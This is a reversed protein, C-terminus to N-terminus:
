STKFLLLLSFNLPRILGDNGFRNAFIPLTSFTVISSSLFIAVLSWSNVNSWIRARLKPGSESDQVSFYADEM